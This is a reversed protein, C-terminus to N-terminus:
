SLLSSPPGRLALSIITGRCVLPCYIIDVTSSPVTPQQIILPTASQFAAAVANFGAILSVANQSHTHGSSPLYPHSHTYSQNGDSHTHMFVTNSFVFNVFVLMTVIAFIHRLRNKM